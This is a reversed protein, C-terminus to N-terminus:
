KEIIEWGEFPHEKKVWLWNFFWDNYKVQWNLTDFYDTVIHNRWESTKHVRKLHKLSIQVYFNKKLNLM